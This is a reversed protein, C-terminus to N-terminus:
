THEGAARATRQLTETLRRVQAPDAVNHHRFLTFGAFSRRKLEALVEAPAELGAFSSMLRYGLAQELTLTPM